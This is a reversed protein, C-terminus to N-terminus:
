KNTTQINVKFRVPKDALENWETTTLVTKGAIWANDENIDAYTGSGFTDSIAINSSDLYVKIVIKGDVGVVDSPITGEALVSDNTLLMGNEYSTVKVDDLGTSTVHVAIPVNKGITNLNVDGATLKYNIGSTNATSGSISVETTIVNASDKLADESSIPFLNALEVNSQSTEVFITGAKLSRVNNNRAYGFFAFSVGVVAVILIAVGIVSLIIQKSSNSIRM